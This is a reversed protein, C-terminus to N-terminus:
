FHRFNPLPELDLLCTATESTDKIQTQGAQVPDMCLTIQTNSQLDLGNPLEM